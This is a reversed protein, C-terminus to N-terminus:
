RIRDIIRELRDLEATVAPSVKAARAVKEADWNTLLRDKKSSNCPWCAPALNERVDLGGGALPRVHDAVASPAGCYVCDGSARVEAYVRAPLPQLTGNATRRQQRISPGRSVKPRPSYPTVPPPLLDFTALCSMCVMQVVSGTFEVVALPTECDKCRYVFEPQRRKRRGSLPGVSVLEDTVEGKEWAGSEVTGEVLYERGPGEVPDFTSRFIQV